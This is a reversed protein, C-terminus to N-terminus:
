IEVRAYEDFAPNTELNHYGFPNSLFRTIGRRMDTSLQSHGFFWYVPDVDALLDDLDTAYCCNLKDGRYQPHVVQYSPLHHTVVVTPEGKYRSLAAFLADREKKHQIVVDEPRLKSHHRRIVHFDNMMRRATLMDLPNSRNMDTWLTAGVFNVGQIHVENLGPHKPHLVFVGGDAAEEIVENPLVEWKNNYFEHNGLVYIVARFRPRLTNAWKIGQTGVGIDGALVLVTDKDEPMVPPSLIYNPSGFELHLDSMYRIFM